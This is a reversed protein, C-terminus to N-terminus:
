RYYDALRDRSRFVTVKNPGAQTEAYKALDISTDVTDDHGSAPFTTMEDYLTQFKPVVKLLGMDDRRAPIHFRGSEMFPQAATARTIKDVVRDLATIPFPSMRNLQQALGLQPGNAEARGDAVKLAVGRDILLEAFDPFTKRVRIIDVLWVHGNNSKWAFLAVSWDPDNNQRKESFALDITVIMKGNMAEWHPIEEFLASDFWAPPFILQEASVPNLEFARGYAIPGLKERRDRLYEATYHEPWPSVYDVVPIRLLTNKERHYKRWDATIDQVHYCTGVKWERPRQKAAIDLMPLWNTAWAEKVSERDTPSKIANRWDCIDDAILIDARGGARGFIGNAEVTADRSYHRTKVKFHGGSWADRDPVVEPFVSAYRDSEIVDRMARTTKIAEKENQQVYKIRLDQNRGIEWVCRVNSTQTTKGIGRHLESYCDINETLHQQFAIHVDGQRFGLVYWAFVNPSQRALEIIQREPLQAIAEANM